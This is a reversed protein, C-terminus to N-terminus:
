LFGRCYNTQLAFADGVNCGIISESFNDVEVSFIKATANHKPVRM